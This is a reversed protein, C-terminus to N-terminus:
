PSVPTVTYGTASTERNFCSTATKVQADKRAVARLHNAPAELSYSFCRFVCCTPETERQQRNAAVCVCQNSCGNIRAAM